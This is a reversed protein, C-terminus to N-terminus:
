TVIGINAQLFQPFDRFRPYPQRGGYRSKLGPGGCYSAPINVVQDRRETAKEFSNAFDLPSPHNTFIKVISNIFRVEEM